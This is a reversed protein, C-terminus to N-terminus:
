RQRLASATWWTNPAPPPAPPAGTSTFSLQLTATLCAPSSCGPPCPCSCQLGVSLPSLWSEGMHLCPMRTITADNSNEMRLAPILMQQFRIKFSRCKFPSWYLVIFTLLNCSFSTYASCICLHLTRLLDDDISSSKVKGQVDLDLLVTHSLLKVISHLRAYGLTIEKLELDAEATM